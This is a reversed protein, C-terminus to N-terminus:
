IELIVSLLFMQQHLFLSVSPFSINISFINIYIITHTTYMSYM